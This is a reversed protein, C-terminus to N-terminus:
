RLTCQFINRYIGVFFKEQQHQQLVDYRYTHVNGYFMRFYFVEESVVALVWNLDHNISHGHRITFYQKKIRDSM